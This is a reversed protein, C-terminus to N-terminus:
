ATQWRSTGPAPSIVGNEQLHAMVECLPLGVVNTYSGAIKEIMFSGLGQIAYGGAKDYPEDTRIYWAIERSSLAKFTVATKVAETCRHRKERCLICYGTYVSHTRGSLLEMMERAADASEPKELTRGDIYVITDAGIVWSEPHIEGVAAAKAEALMRVFSAPSRLRYGSEKVGSDCVSFRLGATELLDRRRPSKSALIIRSTDSPKQM